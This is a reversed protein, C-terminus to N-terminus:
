SRPSRRATGRRTTSSRRPRSPPRTSRPLARFSGARRSLLDELRLRVLDSAGDGDRRRLDHVPRQADHLRQLRPRRGRPAEPPRGAPPDERRPRLAEHLRGREGHLPRADEGRRRQLRLRGVEARGDAARAERGRLPLPSPVRRAEADPRPAAGADRRLRRHVGRAQGPRPDAHAEEDRPEVGLVRLHAIRDGECLLLTGDDRHDAVFWLGPETVLAEKQKTGVNWRYIAYSDPKQDNAGYYVWKGDASVFQFFTQVGKVHQVVTLPGGAAPMVYLGPNEEGKRDRQLVLTKGDPFVDALTTRDEGGTLQVPFTNPGDLRWVQATGTVSWGFFLRSGDPSPQGLGPARVDMLSQIRRALDPPLPKPAYTAIVEAPVSEAGHGKYATQPAAQTPFAFAAFLVLAAAHRM